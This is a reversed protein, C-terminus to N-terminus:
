CSIVCFEVLIKFRIAAVNQTISGKSILKCFVCRLDLTIRIANVRVNNRTYLLFFRARLKNPYSVSSKLDVSTFNIEAFLTPDFTFRYRYVHDNCPIAAM